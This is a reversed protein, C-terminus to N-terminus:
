GGGGGGFWWWGGVCEQRSRAACTQTKSWCAASSTAYARAALRSCRSPSHTYTHQHHHHLHCCPTPVAALLLRLVAEFLPAPISCSRESRRPAPQPAPRTPRRGPAGACRLAAKPVTHRPRGGGQGCTGEGEAARGGLHRSRPLPMARPTGPRRPVHRPPACGACRLHRGDPFTYDARLIRQLMANLKQNPKLFNDGTRRRTLPRVACTSHM